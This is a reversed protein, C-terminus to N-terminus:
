FDFDFKALTLNESRRKLLMRVITKLLMTVGTKLLMTVGTKFLM